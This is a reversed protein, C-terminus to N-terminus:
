PQIVVFVQKEQEGYKQLIKTTWNCEWISFRRQATYAWTCSGNIITYGYSYTNYVIFLIRGKSMQYTIYLFARFLLSSIKRELCLLATFTVVVFRHPIYIKRSTCMRLRCNLKGTRLTCACDFNIHERQIHAHALTSEIDQEPDQSKADVVFPNFIM